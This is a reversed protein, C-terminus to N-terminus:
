YEQEFCYSLSRMKAPSSARASAARTILVSKCGNPAMRVGILLASSFSCFSAATAIEDLRPAAIVVGNCLPSPRHLGCRDCQADSFRYFRQNGQEFTSDVDRDRDDRFLFFYPNVAFRRHTHCDKLSPNNPYPRRMMLNRESKSLVM